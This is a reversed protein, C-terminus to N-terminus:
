EDDHGRNLFDVGGGRSCGSRGLIRLECYCSGRGYMRVRVFRRAVSAYSMTMDEDLFAFMSELLENPLRGTKDLPGPETAPGFSVGM